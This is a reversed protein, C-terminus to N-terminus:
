LSACRDDSEDRERQRRLAGIAFNNPPDFVSQLGHFGARHRDISWTGGLSSSEGGPPRRGSRPCRSGRSLQALISRGPTEPFTIIPNNKAVSRVNTATANRTPMGLSGLSISGGHARQEFLHHLIEAG